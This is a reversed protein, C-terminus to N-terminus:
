ALQLSQLPPLQLKSPHHSGHSLGGQGSQPGTPLSPPMPGGGGGGGMGHDSIMMSIRRDNASTSSRTRAGPQLQPLLLVPPLPSPSPPPFPFPSPPPPPGSM